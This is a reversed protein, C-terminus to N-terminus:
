VNLDFEVDKGKLPKYRLLKKNSLFTDCRLKLTEYMEHTVGGGTIYGSVLLGEVIMHDNGPVFMITHENPMILSLRNADIKIEEFNIIDKLEKLKAQLYPANGAIISLEGPFMKIHKILNINNNVNTDNISM